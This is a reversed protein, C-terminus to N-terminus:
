GWVLLVKMPCSLRCCCGGSEGTRRAPGPGGGPRTGTGGPSSFALFLHEVTRTRKEAIKKGHFKKFPQDELVCSARSWFDGFNRFPRECFIQIKSNERTVRTPKDFSYVNCQLLTLNEHSFFHQYLVCVRFTLSM